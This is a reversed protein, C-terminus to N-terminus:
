EVWDASRLSEFGRKERAIRARPCFYFWFLANSFYNQGNASRRVIMHLSPDNPHLARRLCSRDVGIADPQANMHEFRAAQPWRSLFRSPWLHAAEHRHRGSLGKLLTWPQGEVSLRVVRHDAGGQTRFARQIREPFAFVADHLKRQRENRRTLIETGRQHAQHQVELLVTDRRLQSLADQGELFCDQALSQDRPSAVTDQPRRHPPWQRGAERVLLGAPFSAKLGSQM